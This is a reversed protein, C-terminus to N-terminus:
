GEWFFANHHADFGAHTGDALWFLGMTYTTLASLCADILTLRAALSM